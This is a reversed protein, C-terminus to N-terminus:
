NHDSNHIGSTLRKLSSQGYWVPTYPGNKCMLGHACRFYPFFSRKKNELLMKIVLDPHSIMINADKGTELRSMESKAQLRRTLTQSKEM